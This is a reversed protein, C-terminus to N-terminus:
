SEGEETPQEHDGPRDSDSDTLEGVVGPWLTAGAGPTAGGTSGTNVIPIPLVADEDQQRGGPASPNVRNGEEREVEEASKGLPPISDLKDEAM